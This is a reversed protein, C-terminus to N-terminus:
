PESSYSLNGYFLNLLCPLATVTVYTVQSRPLSPPPFPLPFPTLSLTAEVYSRKKMRFNICAGSIFKAPDSCYHSDVLNVAALRVDDKVLRGVVDRFSSLTLSHGVVYRNLSFSMSSM